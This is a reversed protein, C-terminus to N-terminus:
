GKGLLGELMAKGEALEREYETRYVDLKTIPYGGAELQQKTDSMIREFSANCSAFVASGEQRAKAKQADTTAATYTLALAVLEQRCKNRLADAAERAQQHIKEETPGVPTPPIPTPTPATPPATPPQPAPTPSVSGPPAPTPPNVPGPLQPLGGGPPTGVGGSAPPTSPAPTPQGENKDGGSGGSGGGNGAEGGGSLGSEGGAGSGASVAGEIVIKAKKADWQVTAGTLEAAFRLPVYLTGSATFVQQGSPLVVEKGKMFFKVPTPILGLKAGGNSSLGSNKLRNALKAALAERQAAEPEWLSLTKYKNEWVAHLGLAEAAARLPLYARGQHLFVSTGKDLGLVKGEIIISASATIANVPKASVSTGASKGSTTSAFVAPKSAAGKAASFAFEPKKGTEASAVGGAAPVSLMAALVLLAAKSTRTQDKM